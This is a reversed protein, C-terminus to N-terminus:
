LAAFVELVEVVTEPYDQMFFAEVEFPHDEGDYNELINEITDFDLSSVLDSFGEYNGSSLTVPVTIDSSHGKGGDGVAGGM